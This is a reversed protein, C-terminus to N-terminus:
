SSYDKKEEKHKFQPIEDRIDPPLADYIAKMRDELAHYKTRWKSDMAVAAGNVIRAIRWLRLLILLQALSEIIDSVEEIMLM